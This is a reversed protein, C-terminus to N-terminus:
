FVRITLALLSTYQCVTCWQLLSNQRQPIPKPFGTSGSSHIYMVIDEPNYPANSPPFLEVPSTNGEGSLSPFIDHLAPLQDVHVAFCKPKLHTKISDMVPGFTAQSIIRHCSTKELMHVFAPVSNRPSM